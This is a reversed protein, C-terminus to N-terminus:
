VSRLGVQVCDSIKCAIEDTEMVGERYTRKIKLKPDMKRM